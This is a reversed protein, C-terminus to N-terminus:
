LAQLLKLVAVISVALLPLTAKSATQSRSARKDTRSDALAKGVAAVTEAALIHDLLWALGIAPM